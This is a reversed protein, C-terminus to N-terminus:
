ASHLPPILDVAMPDSLATVNNLVQVTASVQVQTLYPPPQVLKTKWDLTYPVDLKNGTIPQNVLQDFHNPAGQAFIRLRVLSGDPVRETRVRITVSDGHWCRPTSWNVIIREALQAPNVTDQTNEVNM